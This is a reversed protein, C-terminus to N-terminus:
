PQLLISASTFWLLFVVMLFKQVGGHIRAPVACLALFLISLLCALGILIGSGSRPYWMWSQVVVGTLVSAFAGLSALRHWRRMRPNDIPAPEKANATAAAITVFVICLLYMSGVIGFSRAHQVTFCGAVFVAIGGCLVAYAMLGLVRTPGSLYASFPMQVFPLERRRFHAFLGLMFAVLMSSITFVKTLLVLDNRTM